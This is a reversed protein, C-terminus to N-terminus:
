VKREISKSSFSYWCWYAFKSTDVWAHCFTLARTGRGQCEDFGCLCACFFPCVGTVCVWHHSVQWLLLGTSRLWVVHCDCPSSLKVGPFSSIHQLAYKVAVTVELFLNQGTPCSPQNHGSKRKLQCNILKIYVISLWVSSKLLPFNFYKLNNRNKLLFCILFYFIPLSSLLFLLISPSLAICTNSNQPNQKDSQPNLSAGKKM